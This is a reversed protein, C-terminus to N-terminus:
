SILFKLIEQNKGENKILLKVFLLIRAQFRRGSLIHFCWEKQIWTGSTHHGWLHVIRIKRFPPSPNGKSHLLVTIGVASALPVRERLAERTAWITFFRGAICFAQTQNRPWSSGRSFPIAFWELIRAQLIGHVSDIQAFALLYHLVTFVPSICDKLDCLTLFSKVVSCCCNVQADGAMSSPSVKLGTWKERLSSTRPHVIKEPSYGKPDSRYQPICDTRSVEVEKLPTM